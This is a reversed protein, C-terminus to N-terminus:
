QLFLKSTKLGTHIEMWLIKKVIRLDKMEFKASFQANLINIEFINKSTILMDDIYLLLFVFSKDSLKGHYLVIM